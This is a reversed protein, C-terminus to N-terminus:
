AQLMSLIRDKGTIPLHCSGGECLYATLEGERSPCKGMFPILPVIDPNEKKSPNFAVVRRPSFTRDLAEKVAILDPDERNGALILEEGPGTLFDLSMLLYPHARM